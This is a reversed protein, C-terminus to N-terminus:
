QTRGRKNIVPKPPTPNPATPPNAGGNSEDYPSSVHSSTGGYVEEDYYAVDDSLGRGSLRFIVMDKTRDKTIYAGESFEWVDIHKRYLPLRIEQMPYPITMTKTWGKQDKLIAKM